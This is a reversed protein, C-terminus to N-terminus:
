EYDINKLYHKKFSSDNKWGGCKLIQELPVDAFKKQSNSAHRTSGASFTTIDIGAAELVTTIYRRITQSTVASFTAFSIILNRSKRKPETAKIYDIINKVPCINEDEPFAPLDIPSPHFSPSTNKVIKPIYLTIHNDNIDMHDLSLFSLSQSRHGSAFALLTTIKLTLVRIDIEVNVKLPGKSALKRWTPMERLYDLVKDPDYITHYKPLNPRNKFVGMLFRKIIPHKGFDFGDIQHVVSSLASRATNLASYSSGNDYLELLFNTGHIVSTNLPDLNHNKCFAAWKRIYVRYQRISGTSWSDM